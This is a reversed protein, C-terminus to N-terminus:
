PDVLKPDFLLDRRNLALDAVAFKSPVYIFVLISRGYFQVTDPLQKIAQVLV